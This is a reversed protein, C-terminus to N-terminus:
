EQQAGCSLNEQFHLIADKMLSDNGELNEEDM